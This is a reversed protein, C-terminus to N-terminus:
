CKQLFHIHIFLIFLFLLCNTEKCPQSSVQVDENKCEVVNSMKIFYRPVGYSGVAQRMCNSDSNRGCQLEIGRWMCKKQTEGNENELCYCHVEYQMFKENLKEKLCKETDELSGGEEMCSPCESCITAGDHANTTHNTIYKQFQPASYYKWNGSEKDECGWFCEVENQKNSQHICRCNIFANKCFETRDVENIKSFLCDSIKTMDNCHNSDFNDYCSGCDPCTDSTKFYECTEGEIEENWDNACTKIDFHSSKPAQCCYTCHFRIAEDEIICKCQVQFGKSDDCVKELCSSYCNKVEKLDKPSFVYIKNCHNKCEELNYKQKGTAITQLSCLIVLLLMFNATSISNMKNESRSEIIDYTNVM